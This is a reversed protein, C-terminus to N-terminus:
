RTESASGTKIFHAVSEHFSFKRVLYFAKRVTLKKLLYFQIAPPLALLSVHNFRHREFMSKMVPNKTIGYMKRGQERNIDIVMDFMARGMGKGRHEQATYFPGIESWHTNIVIWAGFGVLTDGEYCFRITQARILRQIDAPTIKAIFVSDKAEALLAYLDAESKPEPVIDIPVPDSVTQV